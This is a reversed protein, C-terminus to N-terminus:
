SSSSCSELTANMFYTDDSFYYEYVYRGGLEIFAKPGSAQCLNHVATKISLKAIGLPLGNQKLMEKLEELTVNYRVKFIVTNEEAEVGYMTTKESAPYPLEKSVLAAIHTALACAKCDEANVQGSVVFGMVLAILLNKM